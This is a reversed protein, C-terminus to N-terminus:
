ELEWPPPSPTRSIIECLVGCPGCYVPSGKLTILTIEIDENGCGTTRCVCIVKEWEAPPDM